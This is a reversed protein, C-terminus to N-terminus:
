AGEKSMKLEVRGSGGRAIDLARDILLGAAVELTKGSRGIAVVNMAFASVESGGPPAAHQSLDGPGLTGDHFQVAVACHKTDDKMSAHQVAHHAVARNEETPKFVWAEAAALPPPLKAGEPLTDRAALCSWWVRERAPLAVSLLRLMDILAGKQELEELVTEVAASAPSSLETELEANAMSLLRAAPQQPIKTLNLFRKNM